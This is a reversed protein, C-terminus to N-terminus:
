NEQENAQKHIKAILEVVEVYPQKALVGLIYNIENETFTFEYEKM